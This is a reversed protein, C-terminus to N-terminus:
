LNLLNAVEKAIALSATLGPSEIGLTNIWGPFGNAEEHRIVFDKAGECKRSLKPRVGSYDYELSALFEESVTLYRRLAHRMADLRLEHHIPRYMDETDIEYSVDPGFRVHGEIDITCHTGLGSLNELPCPYVLRSVLGKRFCGKSPKAYMGHVLIVNDVATPGGLNCWVKHAQHGACNVVVESHIPGRSTQLLYSTGERTVSLVECGKMVLGGHQDIEGELYRLLSHSDVISTAGVELVATGRVHPEMAREAEGLYRTKVGLGECHKRMRELKEEELPDTAVIWKGCRRVSVGTKDAQEALDLIM